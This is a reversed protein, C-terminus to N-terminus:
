RFLAPRGRDSSDTNATESMASCNHTSMYSILVQSNLLTYAYTYTRTLNIINVVPWPM